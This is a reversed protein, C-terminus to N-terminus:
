IAVLTAQRGHHDHPPCIFELRKAGLLPVDM